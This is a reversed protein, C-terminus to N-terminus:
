DTTNLEQSLGLSYWMKARQITGHLGVACDVPRRGLSTDYVIPESIFLQYSLVGHAEDEGVWLGIGKHGYM